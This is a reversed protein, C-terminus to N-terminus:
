EEKGTGAATAAAFPRLDLVPAEPWNLRHDIITKPTKGLAATLSAFYRELLFSEGGAKAAQQDATFRLLATKAAGVTEASMAHANSTQDFAYQQSQAQITAAAGREVAVSARAAIEAARVNHYADAAGAPPHIAEIIVAVATLGSHSQDLAAQLQDRLSDAMAERNAGLVEDLTRAAFYAATVRGANARVFAEPTAVTYAARLADADSLGVRYLIRMDASVSQFSQRNNAASAILLQVEAPHTQEWLRDASAPAPDEAGTLAVTETAAESLGIAHVPGYEVARTTGLPWPLGIHLGPHLIAVPAGFREYVARGDLPVLSVGSLGWALLLLFGLMPFTAARLYVLAWSRSFDIGLHERLPAGMGGPTRAGAIIARAIISTVAARAAHPAPAPLFLRGLARLTLEGGIAAVLVALIFGIQPAGPLGINAAIELVGACFTVTTATFALARLSPAEPLVSPNAAHLNREAILLLFALAVSVGGLLFGTNPPCAPLVLAPRLAWAVLVAPLALGPVIVAQPIRAARSLRPEEASSVSARTRKAAILWTALLGSLLVLMAALPLAAVGSRRIEVSTVGGFRPPIALAAALVASFSLVAIALRRLLAQVAAAPAHAPLSPAADDTTM